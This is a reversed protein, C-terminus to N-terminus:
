FIAFDSGTAAGTFTFTGRPNQQFYDNYQQKRLDGGVTINHHGRYIGTSASFGDTRNRNFASKADTLAAIGSSFNLAPPGWNAPDQDDGSIGAEGSINQKNEFEPSM